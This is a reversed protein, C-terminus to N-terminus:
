ARAASNIPTISNVNAPDAVGVPVMDVCTLVAVAAPFLALAFQAGHHTACANSVTSVKRLCTMNADSVVQITRNLPLPIDKATNPPCALM